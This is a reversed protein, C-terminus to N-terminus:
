PERTLRRLRLSGSRRLAELPRLRQAADMTEANEVRRRKLSSAARMLPQPLPEHVPLVSM